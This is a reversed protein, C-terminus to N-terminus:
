TAPHNIHVCRASMRQNAGPPILAMKWRLGALAPSPSSLELKQSAAAPAPRAPLRSPAHAHSCPLMSCPAPSVLGPSITCALQECSSRLLGTTFVSSAAWLLALQPPTSRANSAAEETGDHWCSCAGRIPFAEPRASLVMLRVLFAARSHEGFHVEREERERNQLASGGRQREGHGSGMDVAREM